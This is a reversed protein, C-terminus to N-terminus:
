ARPGMRHVWYPNIDRLSGSQRQEFERFLEPLHQQAAAQIAPTCDLVPKVATQGTFFHNWQHGECIWTGRSIRVVLMWTNNVRGYGLWYLDNSCWSRGTVADEVYPFDVVHLPHGDDLWVEETIPLRQLQSETVELSASVDNQNNAPKRPTRSTRATTKRRTM